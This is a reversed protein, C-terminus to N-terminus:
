EAEDDTFNFKLAKESWITVKTLDKCAIVDLSQMLNHFIRAVYVKVNNPISSKYIVGVISM